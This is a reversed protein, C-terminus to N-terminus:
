ICVTITFIENEKNDKENKDKNEEKFTEKNEDNIDQFIYKNYYKMKFIHQDYYKELNIEHKDPFIDINNKYIFENFKSVDMYYTNPVQEIVPEM